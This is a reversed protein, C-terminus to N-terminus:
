GGEMQSVSQLNFGKASMTLDEVERGTTTLASRLLFCCVVFETRV